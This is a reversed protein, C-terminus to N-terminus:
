VKVKPVDTYTLKATEYDKTLLFYLSIRFFFDREIYVLEENAYLSKPGM